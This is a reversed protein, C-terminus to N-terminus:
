RSWKLRTKDAKTAQNLTNIFEMSQATNVDSVEM